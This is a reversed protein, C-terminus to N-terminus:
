KQQLAHKNVIPDLLLNEQSAARVNAVDGIEAGTILASAAEVENPEDPFACEGIGEGVNGNCSLCSSSSERDSAEGSDPIGYPDNGHIDEVVSGASAPTVPQNIGVSLNGSYCLVLEACTVVDKSTHKEIVDCVLRFGRTSALEEAASGNQWRDILVGHERLGAAPLLRHLIREIANVSM